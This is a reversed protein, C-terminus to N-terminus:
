WGLWSNISIHLARNGIEEHPVLSYTYHAGIGHLALFFILFLYSTTSIYNKLYFIVAPRILLFVLINELVWDSRSQVKFALATWELLFLGTMILCIM